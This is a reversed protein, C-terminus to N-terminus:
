LGELPRFVQTILTFAPNNLFEFDSLLQQNVGKNGRQCYACKDDRLNWRPIRCGCCECPAYPSIGTLRYVYSNREKGVILVVYHKSMQALVNKVAPQSVHCTPNMAIRGASSDGIQRMITLVIEITESGKVAM